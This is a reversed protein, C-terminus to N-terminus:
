KGICFQSFISSLIEETINSGIVKGLEILAGRLDATLFEPSIGQGLGEMVSELNQIASSLAEKHRLTTILVQDKPPAGKQWVLKEIASKLHELGIKEKASIKLEHVFPSQCIAHSPLDVKNWLAITKEKPLKAFLEEEESGLTKAADLVLLVIDATELAAKSRRIGEAEVIESTERIGATDTLKFHLGGIRMEEHLLDRTTGAIPTVIARDQDLLANMLSSKGANPAGVICLSIGQEIKRGDHFTNALTHMENKLNQLRQLIEEETAFEIGEEPFDVWAEFIAALGVLEKQFAGIKKSLAGELHTSAAQFAQENKASILKQVSEAQALDIKGNMFAKFTFEGPLAARAGAKMCAELVKKSAIMGGHCQLEVTDEGTYSRPARMVIALAEDLKDGNQNKVHGFHATHSIYEAVPGSFVRDAVEIARHGSIRIISIGGEGPPTAIAAITEGPQYPQQIFDM